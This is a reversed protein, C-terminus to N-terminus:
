CKSHERALCFCRATESCLCFRCPTPFWVKSSSPLTCSCMNCKKRTVEHVRTKHKILSSKTNTDFGCQDCKHTIGEHMSETRDKMQGSFKCKFDCKTCSQPVGHMAKKHAKLTKQNKAVSDCTNCNFVQGNHWGTHDRLYIPRNTKYDCITCYYLKRKGKRKTAAKPKQRDHHKEMHRNGSEMEESNEENTCKKSTKTKNESGSSKIQELDTTNM